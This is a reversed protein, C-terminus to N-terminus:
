IIIDGPNKLKYKLMSRLLNGSIKIFKNKDEKWIPMIRGKIHDCVILDTEVRARKEISLDIM